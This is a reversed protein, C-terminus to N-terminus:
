HNSAIEKLKESVKDAGMDVIYPGLRPGRQVGLLVRYLANFLSSPEMSHSRATDFIITQIAQPDGIGMIKDALELIASREEESLTVEEQALTFEKAYSM